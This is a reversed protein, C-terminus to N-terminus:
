VSGTVSSIYERLIAMAQRKLDNRLDQYKGRNGYNRGYAEVSISGGGTRAGVFGLLQEACLYIIAEKIDDPYDSEGLTYTVKINRKGRRFYGVLNGENQNSVKKIIGGEILILGGLGIESDNDGGSVYEVRVLSTANRNSLMLTDTSTGSLHEVKEIVGDFPVGTILKVQPVIFRDRRKNMWDDSLISATINYGELFERIETATPVAM